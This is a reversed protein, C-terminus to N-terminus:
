VDHVVRSRGYSSGKMAKEEVHVARNNVRRAGYFLMPMRSIEDEVGVYIWFIGPWPSGASMLIQQILLTPLSIPTDGSTMRSVDWPLRLM